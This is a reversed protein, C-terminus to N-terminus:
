RSFILTGEGGQLLATTNRIKFGVSYTGSGLNVELPNDSVIGSLRNNIRWEMNYEDLSRLNDLYYPVAQININNGVFPQGSILAKHHLGYLGDYEYFQVDIESVPMNITRRAIIAGSNNQIDVSITHNRGQPITFYTQFGGRVPGSNLVKTGVRWRYTFQSSDVPGNQTHLLATLLVQSGFIPLAAGKYFSPTYTQPEIIVDIHYPTITRSANFNGASGSLNASVRLSEGAAPATFSISRKNNDDTRVSGDISWTIANGASGLSYDDVSATVGEGPNPFEPSLTITPNSGTLSSNVQAKTPFVPLFVLLFAASLSVLYKSSM